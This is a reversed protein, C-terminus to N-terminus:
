GSQQLSALWDPDPDCPSSIDVLMGNPDKVLMRRQGYFLDRPPEVITAGATMARRYSADVDDVVVTLMGGGAKTRAAEPILENHRLMIGLEVMDNNPSQLHVFWESDFDVVYELLNVYWDKSVRLDDSFVCFFNRSVM